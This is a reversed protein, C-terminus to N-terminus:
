NGLLCETIGEITTRVFGKSFAVIGYHYCIIFLFTVSAVHINIHLHKTIFKMILSM